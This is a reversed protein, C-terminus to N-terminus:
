QVSRLRAAQVPELIRRLAALLLAALGDLRLRCLLFVVRMAASLPASLGGVRQLPELCRGAAAERCFDSFQPWRRLEKIQDRFFGVGQGYAYNTYFVSIFSQAALLHRSVGSPTDFRPTEAIRELFSDLPNLAGDMRRPRHLASDGYVIYHYLPDPLIAAREVYPAMDMCFAMDAGIKLPLPERARDTLRRSYLKNWLAPFAAVCRLYADRTGEIVAPASVARRLTRAEGKIEWFGCMALDAQAESAADYLRRYMAPDVFDDADAFGVYEGRARRIGAYRAAAEGRNEQDIVQFRPDEGAAARLLEGSGDTSGDNVLLVEIDPLSQARLSALCAPLTREANYVPVVISVKPTM